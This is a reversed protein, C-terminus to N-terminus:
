FIMKLMEELMSLENKLKDDYRKVLIDNVYFKQAVEVTIINRITAEGASKM